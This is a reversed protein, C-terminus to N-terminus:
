TRSLVAPSGARQRPDQHVRAAATKARWDALPRESYPDALRNLAALVLCTATSAIADSWRAGAVEDIIGAVGLDELVGLQGRGRRFGPAPHPRAPGPRRRTAAALEEATGPYEQSAIWPKGGVQGVGRVGGDEDVEASPQQM